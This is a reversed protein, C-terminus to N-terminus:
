GIILDKKIFGLSLKFRLTQYNNDSDILENGINDPLIIDNAEIFSGIPFENMNPYIKDELLDNIASAKEVSTLDNNKITTLSDFLQNHREKSLSGNKPGIYNQIL